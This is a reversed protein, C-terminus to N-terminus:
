VQLDKKGYLTNPPGFFGNLKKWLILCMKMKMLLKISKSIKHIDAIERITYCQNSEIRTEIQDSDGEVPRSSRPAVDLSFDGAHFKM